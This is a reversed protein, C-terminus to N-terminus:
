SGSITIEQILVPRCHECERVGPAWVAGCKPCEWGRMMSRRTIERSVGDFYQYPCGAEHQGATNPSCYPCDTIM